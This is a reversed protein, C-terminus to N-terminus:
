KERWKKARILSKHWPCRRGLLTALAAWVCSPSQRCGKERKKPWQAKKLGLLARPERKRGGMKRARFLLWEKRWTKRKSLRRM